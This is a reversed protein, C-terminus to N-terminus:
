PITFDYDAEWDTTAARVLVPGGSDDRLAKALARAYRNEALDTNMGQFERWTLSVAMLCVQAPLVCEADDNDPFEGYGGADLAWYNTTIYAMEYTTGVDPAPNLRISDGWWTWRGRWSPLDYLSLWETRSPIFRLAYRQGQERVDGGTAMARFDSPLAFDETGAVASSFTHTAQLQRWEGETAARVIGARVAELLVREDTSTGFLTTLERGVERRFVSNGIELATMGM